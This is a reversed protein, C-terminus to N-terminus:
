GRVLMEAEYGAAQVADLIQLPQVQAGHFEVLLHQKSDGQRVDVIGPLRRLERRIEVSCSACNTGEVMLEVTTTRVAPQVVAVQQLVGEESAECAGLLMLPVLWSLRRVLMM